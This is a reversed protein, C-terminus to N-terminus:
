KEATVTISGTFNTNGNIKVRCTEADLVEYSSGTKATIKTVKKDDAKFRVKVNKFGKIKGANKGNAILMLKNDKTLRTHLKVEALDM